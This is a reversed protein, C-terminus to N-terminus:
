EGINVLVFKWCSFAACIFGKMQRLPVEVTLHIRYGMVQDVADQTRSKNAGSLVPVLIALRAISFM